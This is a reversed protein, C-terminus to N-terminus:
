KMRGLKMHPREGIESVGHFMSRLGLHAEQREIERRLTTLATRAQERRFEKVWKGSGQRTVWLAELCSWVRLNVPYCRPQHNKQTLYSKYQSRIDCLVRRIETPEKLEIIGGGVSMTRGNYFVIENRVIWDIRAYDRAMSRISKMAHKKSKRFPHM